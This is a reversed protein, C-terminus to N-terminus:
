LEIFQLEVIRFVTLDMEYQMFCVKFGLNLLFSQCVEDAVNILRLQKSPSM